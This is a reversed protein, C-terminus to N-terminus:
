RRSLASPPMYLTYLFKDERNIRDALAHMIGTLESDFTDANLDNIGLKLYHKIFRMLLRGIEIRMGNVLERGESDDVLSHTVFTYLRPNEELLHHQLMEKFARLSEITAPYDNAVLFKRVRHFQAVLVVHPGVFREILKPEYRIETGSGVESQVIRAIHEDSTGSRGTFSNRIFGFM